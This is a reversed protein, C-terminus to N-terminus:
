KERNVQIRAGNGRYPFDAIGKRMEKQKMVGGAKSKKRQGVESRVWEEVKGEDKSKKWSSRNGVGDPRVV